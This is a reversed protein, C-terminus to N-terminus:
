VPSWAHHSFWTSLLLVASYISKTCRMIVYPLRPYSPGRRYSAGAQLFHSVLSRAYIVCLLAVVRRISTVFACRWFVSALQLICNKGNYKNQHLLIIKGNSYM